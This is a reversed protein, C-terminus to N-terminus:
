NDKDEEMDNNEPEPDDIEANFNDINLNLGKAKELMEAYKTKKKDAKSAVAKNKKKINRYKSKLRSAITKKLSFSGAIVFPGSHCTNPYTAESKKKNPIWLPVALQVEMLTKSDEKAKKKEEESAESDEILTKMFVLSVRIVLYYHPVEDREYGYLQNNEFHTLAKKHEAGIASFRAPTFFKGVRYERIVCSEEINYVAKLASCLNIDPANALSNSAFRLAAVMSKILHCTHGLVGRTMTNILSNFWVYEKEVVPMQDYVENLKRFLIEDKIEDFATSLFNFPQTFQDFKMNLHCIQYPPFDVEPGKKALYIMLWNEDLSDPLFYKVLKAKPISKAENEEM